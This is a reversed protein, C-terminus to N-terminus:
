QKSKGTFMSQDDPTMPRLLVNGNLFSGKIHESRNKWIKENLEKHTLLATASRTEM